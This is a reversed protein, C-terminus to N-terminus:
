LKYNENAVEKRAIVKLKNWQAGGEGRRSWELRNLFDAFGAITGM